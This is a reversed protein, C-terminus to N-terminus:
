TSAYLTINTSVAKKSDSFHAKVFRVVLDHHSVLITNSKDGGTATALPHFNVGDLSGLLTLSFTKSYRDAPTTASVAVRSYGMVNMHETAVGKSEASIDESYTALVNRADGLKSKEINTWSM